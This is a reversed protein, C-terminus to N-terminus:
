KLIRAIAGSDSKEITYGRKELEDLYKKHIWSSIEISEQSKLFYDLEKSILTEGKGDSLSTSYVDDALFYDRERGISFEQDVIGKRLNALQNVLADTVVSAYLKWRVEAIAQVYETVLQRNEETSTYDVDFIKKVEYELRGCDYIEMTCGCAKFYEQYAPNIYGIGRKAGKSVAEEVISRYLMDAYTLRLHEPMLCYEDITLQYNKVYDDHKKINSMTKDEKRLLSIITDLKELLLLLQM